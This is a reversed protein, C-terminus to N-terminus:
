LIRQPWAEAPVPRSDVLVEFRGLLRIELQRM